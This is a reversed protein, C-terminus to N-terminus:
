RIGAHALLQWLRMSPPWRHGIPVHWHWLAWFAAAVVGLSLLWPLAWFRGGAVGWGTASQKQLPSPPPGEALAGPMFGLPALPIGEPEPAPAGAAGGDPLPPEIVPEVVAPVRWETACGACRLLRPRSLQAAPIEYEAGCSPCLVHM